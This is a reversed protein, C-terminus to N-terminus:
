RGFVWVGGEPREVVSIDGGLQLDRAFGAVDVRVYPRFWPDVAREVSEHVGHEEFLNEAYDEASEWQGLFVEEFREIEALDGGVHSAWAAAALGHDRIANAMRTVWLVTDHEGVPLTGFGDYDHIAWEEAPEGYQKATPSEALMEAIGVHLEDPEVGADLWAGHLVGNNYDSLSAVYVRPGARPEAEAVEGPQEIETSLPLPEDHRTPEQENM